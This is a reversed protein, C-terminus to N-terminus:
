PHPLPPLRHRRDSHCSSQYRGLARIRASRSPRLPRSDAYARRGGPAARWQGARAGAAFPSVARGAARHQNRRRPDAITFADPRCDRQNIAKEGPTGTFIIAAADDEALADAVSAWKEALWLKSSAGSGPHVCIVPAAAPIGWASLRADITERDAALLPFDLQAEATLPEDVLTEVLRMNQEVAHRRELKRALTLFPAPGPLDYGIRQPIGALWALLAGWWHDPRMIIASDYGIGRLKRASRLALVYPNGGASDRGFGPFPLTLAQDIDPYNALLDACWPGCLVHIGLEPRQAKIAAIAPTTLLMDGLHDPRIILLRNSDANQPPLPAKAVIELLRNRLRHKRTPQHLAEALAQNRKALSENDM